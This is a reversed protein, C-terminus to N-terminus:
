TFLYTLLYIFLIMQASSMRGASISRKLPCKAPHFHEPVMQIRKERCLKMSM